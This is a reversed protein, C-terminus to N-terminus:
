SDAEIMDQWMREAASVIYLVEHRGAPRTLETSAIVQDFAETQAIRAFTRRDM